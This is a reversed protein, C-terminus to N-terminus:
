TTVGVRAYEATIEGTMIEPGSQILESLRDQVWDAARATTADVGAQDECITVSSITGDGRDIVYYAVFGPVDRVLPIFEDKVRRAIEDTQTARYTRIVGYM